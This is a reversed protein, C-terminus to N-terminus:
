PQVQHLIIWKIAEEIDKRTRYHYRPCDKPIMGHAKFEEWPILIFSDEWKACYFCRDGARSLENLKPIQEKRLQHKIGLSDLVKVEVWIGGKIYRDPWGPDRCSMHWSPLGVAAGAAAFADEFSAESTRRKKKKFNGVRLTGNTTRGM